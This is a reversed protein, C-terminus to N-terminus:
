RKSGIWTPRFKKGWDLRMLGSEGHVMVDRVDAITEGVLAIREVPDGKRARRSLVVKRVWEAGARTKGAGRGGLM